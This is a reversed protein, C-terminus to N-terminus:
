LLVSSHWSACLSSHIGVSSSPALLCRLVRLPVGFLGLFLVLSEEAIGKSASAAAAVAGHSEFHKLLEALAAAMWTNMFSWSLAAAAAERKGVQSPSKIFACTLLFVDKSQFKEKSGPGCGLPGSCAGPLLGSDFVIHLLSSEVMGAVLLKRNGLVM